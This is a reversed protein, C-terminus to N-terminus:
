RLGRERLNNVYISINRAHGDITEAFNHLGSDDGRACFFIYDHKEYNLVADISAITTITIPGPPLGRYKYTNYPSDFQTHYELVRKAEFDRTAFVCTPDAQLPMGIRIRNLYAGAVRPKESNQLTEKEVISALTYVEEPTMGLAAAKARRDNKDWFADHERIMRDLFGRASTTWFFEYTNPIFLTMVTEQSYGISDLLTTDSLVAAISASDTELFRAAKGAVDFWERETTLVLKVPAQGGARLHRILEIASWGPQVEYRGARMPDKVYAMRQAFLRFLSENAIVGQAKLTDLAEEFNLGSPIYVVQPGQLESPVMEANWYQQYLWFAIGGLLLFAVLLANRLASKM